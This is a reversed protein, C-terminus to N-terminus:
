DEFFYGVWYVIVWVGSIVWDQVYVFIVEVLLCLVVFCIMQLGVDVLDVVFGMVDILIFEVLQWLVVDCGLYLFCDEDVVEVKEVGFLCIGVEVVNMLIVSFFLFVLDVGYM